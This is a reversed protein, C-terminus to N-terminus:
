NSRKNISLFFMVICVFPLIMDGIEGPAQGETEIPKYLALGFRGAYEIVLTLFMLPILTKYRIAVIVQIIGFM